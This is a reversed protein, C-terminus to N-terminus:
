TIDYITIHGGTVRGSTANRIYGYMTSNGYPLKSKESRCSASSEGKSQDLAIALCSYFEGDYTSYYALGAYIYGDTATCTFGSSSISLASGTHKLPDYYKGNNMTTIMTDPGINKATIEMVYSKSRGMPVDVIILDDPGANEVMGQSIDAPLVDSYHEPTTEIACATSIMLALSVLLASIRMKNKDM